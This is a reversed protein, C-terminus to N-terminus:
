SKVIGAESLEEIQQPTYGLDSLIDRTHEGIQPPDLRLGFDHHSMEIPTRPMKTRVGDPFVTELLGAGQNLQPDEFLDEPRTVPAFPIGAKECLRIAETKSLKALTAKIEPILREEQAVRDNNTKLGEDDFLDKRDFTECFRQWHRDSTIGIFVSEQDQTKFIQYVAWTSLRASMPPLPEDSLAACAMHQGMFFATTEFLASKVFQGKGTQERERLALLIAITGFLAGGIDVISSGARLPRGPPGTMYALGGMMQVVEDLAPRDEYPGHLFGKLSCYILGPNFKSLEDYGYGLREMTGPGFNEILIDAQEALKMIIERGEDSKINLALSKKNRSFFPFFGTGFGKLDRTPDGQPPEVHIVEAGLDGLVLGCAPGMIAHTFELIRIGDLPLPQSATSSM